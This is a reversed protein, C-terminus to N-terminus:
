HQSSAERSEGVTQARGGARAALRDALWQEIESRVFAIRKEGLSVPLPFNGAARLKFIQTRSYTTFRAVEAVTMLPSQQAGM